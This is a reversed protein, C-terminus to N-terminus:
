RLFRPVASRQPGEYEAPTTQKTLKKYQDESFPITERRKFTANYNRLNGLAGAAQEEIAEFGKTSQYQASAMGEIPQTKASFSAEFHTNTADPLKDIGLKKTIDKAEKDFARNAQRATSGSGQVTYEQKGM